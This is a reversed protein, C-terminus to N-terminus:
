ELILAQQPILDFWKPRPEYREVVFVMMDGSVAMAEKMEHFMSELDPIQLTTMIQLVGGSEQIRDCWSEYLQMTHDKQHQTLSQEYISELSHGSMAALMCMTFKTQDTDTLLVRVDKGKEAHEILSKVNEIKM